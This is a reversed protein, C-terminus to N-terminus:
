KNRCRGWRAASRTNQRPDEAAELVLRSVERGSRANAPKPISFSGGGKEEFAGTTSNAARTRQRRPGDGRRALPGPPRTKDSASAGYTLRRSRATPAWPRPRGAWARPPGSAPQGPDPLQAAPGTLLIKWERANAVAGPRGGDPREPRGLTHFAPVHRAVVRQRPAGEVATLRIGASIQQTQSSTSATGLGLGGGDHVHEALSRLNVGGEPTALKAPRAGWSRRPDIAIPARRPRASGGLEFIRSSPASGYRLYFLRKAAGKNSLQQRTASSSRAFCGGTPSRGEETGGARAPELLRCRPGVSRVRRDGRGGNVLNGGRALHKPAEETVAGKRPELREGAGDRRDRGSSPGGLEIGSRRAKAATGFPSGGKVDRHLKRHGPRATGFGARSPGDHARRALLVSSLFFLFLSRDIPGVWPPGDGWYKSRRPTAGGEVLFRAAVNLRPRLTFQRGRAEGGGGERGTSRGAHGADASPYALEDTQGHLLGFRLPGKSRPLGERGPGRDPRKAGGDRGEGCCCRRQDGLNRSLSLAKTM